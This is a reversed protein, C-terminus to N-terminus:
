FCPDWYADRVGIRLGGGGEVKKWRGSEPNLRVQEWANNRFRWVQKAANPQPTYEYTQDESFGNKDTREARDGQTKIALDNGIKFVEVITGASRDTWQLFTVGMGVVPDPQGRTARSYIHNMVSGTEKGLKLAM